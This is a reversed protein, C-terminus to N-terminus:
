VDTFCDTNYMSNQILNECTRYAHKMATEQMQKKLAELQQKMETNTNATTAKTM